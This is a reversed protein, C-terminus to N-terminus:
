ICAYTDEGQDVSHIDCIVMSVAPNKHSAWGMLRAALNVSDGLVVYECRDTSGCTGAYVLKFNLLLYFM